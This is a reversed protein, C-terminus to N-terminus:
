PDYLLFDSLVETAEHETLQTKCSVELNDPSLKQLYKRFRYQADTYQVYTYPEAQAAMCATLMCVTCFVCLVAVLRLMVTYQTYRM